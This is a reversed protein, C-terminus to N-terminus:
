KFLSKLIAFLCIIRFISNKKKKKPHLRHCIKNQPHEFLSELGTSYAHSRLMRSLLRIQSDSTQELLFVPDNLVYMHVTNVLFYTVGTNRFNPFQRLQFLPNPYLRLVECLKADKQFLQKNESRLKTM